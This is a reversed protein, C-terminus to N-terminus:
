IQNTDYKLERELYQKPYQRFNLNFKEFIPTSNPLQSDKWDVLQDFLFGWTHGHFTIQKYKKM